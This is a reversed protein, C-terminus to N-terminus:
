SKEGKTTDPVVETETTKGKIVEVETPEGYLDDQPYVTTIVSGDVHETLVTGICKTDDDYFEVCVSERFVTISTDVPKRPAFREEKDRLPFNYKIGKFGKENPNMDQLRRILLSYGDHFTIVETGDDEKHKTVGLELCDYGVALLMDVLEDIVPEPKYESSSM